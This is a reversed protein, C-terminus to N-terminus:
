FDNNLDAGNCIVDAQQLDGLERNSGKAKGLTGLLTDQLSTSLCKGEVLEGKTGWSTGVSHQEATLSVRPFSTLVKAHTGVLVLFWISGGLTAFYTRV